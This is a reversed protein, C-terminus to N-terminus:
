CCCGRARYARIVHGTVDDGAGRLNWGAAVLHDVDIAAVNDHEVDVALEERQKITTRVLTRREVLRGAHRPQGRRLGADILTGADAFQQAAGPM